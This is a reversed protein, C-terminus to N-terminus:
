YIRGSQGIIYVDGKRTAVVTFPNPMRKLKRCAEIFRLVRMGLAWDLANEFINLAWNSDQGDGHDTDIMTQYSKEDGLLSWSLDKATKIAGATVGAVVAQPDIDWAKVRNNRGTKPNKITRTYM